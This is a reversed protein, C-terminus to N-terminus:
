WRIVKTVTEFTNAVVSFKYCEGEVLEAGGEPGGHTPSADRSASTASGYTVPGAFGAPFEQFELVWFSEGGTVTQGPGAPMTASPETVYLGIANPGDWSITVDDGSRDINIAFSGTSEEQCGGAPPATPKRELRWRVGPLDFAPGSLNLEGSVGDAVGDGDADYLGANLASGNGFSPGAPVPLDTIRLNPGDVVYETTYLLDMGLDFVATGGGETGTMQVPVVADVTIDSFNGDQFNLVPVAVVWQYEGELTLQPARATQIELEIDKAPTWGNAAEFSSPVTLTYITDPELNELPTLTVHRNDADSSLGILSGDPAAVRIATLNIADNFVPQSFTLRIKQDIGLINQEDFNSNLVFFDRATIEQLYRMMADMDEEVLTRGFTDLAVDVSDRLTAASGDKLWSGVRTVDVLSPVDSLGPTLGDEYIQKNTTLKGQHCGGCGAKAQFVEFGTMAQETMSGDRHTWGNAAPAPMLSALFDGLAIAEDTDFRKNITSGGVYGSVKISGVYGDWGIRGTGELWRFPRTVQHNPFPGANWVVGDSLGDVHCNACTRNAGQTEGPISFVQAGYVLTDPRTDPSGTGVTIVNGSGIRHLANTVAGHVVTLNEDCTVSRPRGTTTYRGVEALTTPDLAITVDSSEATVWVLGDCVAMNQLTVAHGTSSDQRTLDASRLRKAEGATPELVVVEHMFSYVDEDNLGGEIDNATGVMWLEGDNFFLDNITSSAELIYGTTELANTDIIAIDKEDEIDRSDYPFQITQGSRHSAVFLESGDSSLTLALPDYVADIQAVLQRTAIDVVAVQDSGSLSVYAKSGDSSVVVGAPADGVWVADVQRGERIDVFGITDSAKNAVLVMEQNPVQALSVPWGGVEITGLQALDVRSLRSITPSYVNAVWLEDGVTATSHWPYYNYNHFPQGVGPVVEVSDEISEGSEPHTAVFSYSGEVHPTFRYYGDKGAVLENANGSAANAITWSLEGCLEANPFTPLYFTEGVPFRTRNQLPLTELACPDATIGEVEDEDDSCGATMSGLALACLLTIVTQTQFGNKFFRVPNDVKSLWLMLM